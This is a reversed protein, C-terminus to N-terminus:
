TEYKKHLKKIIFNNLNISNYYGKKFFYFLKLINIKM